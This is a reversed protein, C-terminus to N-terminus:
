RRWVTKALLFLGTFVGLLLGTLLCAPATDLWADLAYGIGGLLGISGILSYSATAAPAAQASREQFARIQRALERTRDEIPM